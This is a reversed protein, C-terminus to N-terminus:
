TNGTVHLAMMTDSSVEDSRKTASKLSENSILRQIDGM